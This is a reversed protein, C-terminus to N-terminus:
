MSALGPMLTPEDDKVSRTFASSVVKNAVDDWDAASLRDDKWFAAEAKPICIEKGFVFTTVNIDSTFDSYCFKHHKLIELV